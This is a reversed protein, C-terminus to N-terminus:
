KAKTRITTLIIRHDVVRKLMKENTPRVKDKQSIKQTMRRVWNEFSDICYPASKKKIDM